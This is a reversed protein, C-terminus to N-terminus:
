RSPSPVILALVVLLGTALLPGLAGALVFWRAAGDLSQHLDAAQVTTLVFDTGTAGALMLAVPRAAGARRRVLAALALLAGVMLM